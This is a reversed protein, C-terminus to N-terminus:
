VAVAHLTVDHEEALGTEEICRTPHDGREDNRDRPLASRQSPLRVPDNASAGASQSVKYNRDTAYITEELGIFVQNFAHIEVCPRAKLLKITEEKSVDAKLVWMTVDQIAEINLIDDLAVHELISAEVMDTVDLLPM